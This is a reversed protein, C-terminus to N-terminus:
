GKSSKRTKFKARMSAPVDATLTTRCQQALGKVALSSDPQTVASPDSAPFSEAVAEDLLWEDHKADAPASARPAPAAAKATRHPRKQGM